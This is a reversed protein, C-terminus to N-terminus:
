DRHKTLADQIVKVQRDLDAHTGQMKFSLDRTAEAITEAAEDCIRIPLRPENQAPNVAYSWGDAERRDSLLPALLGAAWERRVERLAHCVSRCHQVSSTALYEQFLPRAETGGYEGLAILLHYGNGFPGGDEPRDALMKAARERIMTPNDPGVSRMSALVVFPNTPLEFIRLVAAKIRPERCWAVAKVFDAARVGNAVCQRLDEDVEEPGHMSGSGPRHATVDLKDLRRAILEASEAPFYFLLRMAADVPLRGGLGVAYPNERDFVVQTAYDLLLSDLLKQASDKSSWIDRVARCLKADHTPSTLM